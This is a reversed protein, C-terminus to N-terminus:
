GQMLVPNQSPSSSHLDYCVVRGEENRELLFGAVVPHEMLVEYGNTFENEDGSHEQDAHELPSGRGRRREGRQDDSGYQTPEPFRSPHRGVPEHPRKKQIGLDLALIM